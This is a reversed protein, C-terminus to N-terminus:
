PTRRTGDKSYNITGPWKVKDDPYSGGYIAEECEKQFKQQREERKKQKGKWKMEEIRKIWNWKPQLTEEVQRASVFPNGLAEASLQLLEDIRQRGKPGWHIKEGFGEHEGRLLLLIYSLREFHRTLIGLQQELDPQRRTFVDMMLLALSRLPVNDRTADSAMILRAKMLMAGDVAHVHLVQSRRWSCEALGKTLKDEEEYAPKIRDRFLQYHEDLEERSADALGLTTYLVVVALGYKVGTALGRKRKQRKGERAKLCNAYTSALRKPTPRYKKEPDANAQTLNLRNATLVKDSVTYRRKPKPEPNLPEVM